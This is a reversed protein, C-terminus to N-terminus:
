EKVLKFTSVKFITFRVKIRYISDEKIMIPQGASDIEIEDELCFSISEVKMPAVVNYCSKGDIIKMSFYELDSPKAAAGGDYINRYDHKKRFEFFDKGNIVPEKSVVEIYIASDNKQSTYGDKSYGFDVAFPEPIGIMFLTLPVFHNWEKM